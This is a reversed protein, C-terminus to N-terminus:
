GDALINGRLTSNFLDLCVDSPYWAISQDIEIFKLVSDLKLNYWGRRLAKDLCIVRTPFPSTCGIQLPVRTNATRVLSHFFTQWVFFARM